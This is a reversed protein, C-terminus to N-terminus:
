GVRRKHRHGRRGHKVNGSAVAVPLQFGSHARLVHTVYAPDGSRRGVGGRDPDLQWGEARVGLQEFDPKLVFAYEQGGNYRRITDREEQSLRLHDSDIEGALVGSGPQRSLPTPDPLQLPDAGLLIRLCSVASLLAVDQDVRVATTRHFGAGSRSVLVATRQKAALIALGRKVNARWDWVEDASAIAGSAANIQMLGIDGTRSSVPLGTDPMFHRLGSEAMGIESALLGMRNPPFARLVQARTPNEGIIRAQAMGFVPRGLCDARAYVTLKGGRIERGFDVAFPSPRNFARDGISHRTPYPPESYDVSVRWTFASPKPLGEPWNVVDAKAVVDNPMTPAGSRADILIKFLPRPLTVRVAPIPGMPGPVAPGIPTPSQAARARGGWLVAAFWAIRCFRVTVSSCM